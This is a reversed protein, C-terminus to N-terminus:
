LISRRMKSMLCLHILKKLSRTLRALSRIPKRQGRSPWQWLILIQGDHDDIWQRTIRHVKKSNSINKFFKQFIMHPDMVFINLRTMQTLSQDSEVIPIIPIIQNLHTWNRKTINTDQKDLMVLTSALTSHQEIRFALNHQQAKRCLVPSLFKNMIGNTGKPPHSMPFQILSVHSPQDDFSSNQIQLRYRM